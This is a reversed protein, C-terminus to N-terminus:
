RCAKRIAFRYCFYFVTQSIYYFFLVMVPVRGLPFDYWYETPQIWQWVLLLILALVFGFREEQYRTRSFHYQKMIDPHAAQRLAENNREPYSSDLALNVAAPLAALAAIIYFASPYHLASLPVLLIILIYRSIRWACFHSVARIERHKFVATTTM